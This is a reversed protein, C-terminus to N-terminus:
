KAATIESKAVLSDKGAYMECPKVTALSCLQCFKGYMFIKKASHDVLHHVSNPEPVFVGSFVPILDDGDVVVPDGTAPVVVKRLLIM